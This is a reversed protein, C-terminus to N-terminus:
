TMTFCGSASLAQGTVFSADDIRSRSPARTCVIRSPYLSSVPPGRLAKGIEMAWVTYSAMMTILLFDM